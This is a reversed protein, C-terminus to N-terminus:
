AQGEADVLQHGVDNNENTIEAPLLGRSTAPRTRRLLGARGIGRLSPPKQLVSEILVDEIRSAWTAGARPVVRLEGDRPRHILRLEGLLVELSRAEGM